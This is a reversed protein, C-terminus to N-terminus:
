PQPTDDPSPGAAGSKTARATKRRELAAARKKNVEALQDASLVGDVEVDRDAELKAMQDRLSQIKEFYSGQIEYIRTRQERTM